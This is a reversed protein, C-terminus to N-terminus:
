FKCNDQFYESFIFIRRKMKSSSVNGVSGCSSQNINWCVSVFSTTTSTAKSSRAPTNEM